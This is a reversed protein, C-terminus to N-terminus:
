DEPYLEIIKAEQTKPEPDPLPEPIPPAKVEDQIRKIQEIEKKASPYVSMDTLPEFDYEADNIASEYNDIHIFSPVPTKGSGIMIITNAKAEDIDHALVGELRFGQNGVKVNFNFVKLPYLEVINENM